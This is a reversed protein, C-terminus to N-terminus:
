LQGVRAPMKDELGGIGSVAFKISGQHFVKRRSASLPRRMSVQSANAWAISCAVAKSHADDGTGNPAAAGADRGPAVERMFKGSAGSIPGAAFYSKSKHTVKLAPCYPTVGNRIESEPRSGRGM